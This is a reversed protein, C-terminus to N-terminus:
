AEGDGPLVDRSPQVEKEASGSRDVGPQADGSVTGDVTADSRLQSLLHFLLNLQENSLNELRADKLTYQRTTQEISDATKKATYPLLAKAADMRLQVPMDPNNSIDALLELPAKKLNLKEGSM